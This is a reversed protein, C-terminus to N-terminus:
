NKCTFSFNNLQVIKLITKKKHISALSTEHEEPGIACRASNAADKVPRRVVTQRSCL